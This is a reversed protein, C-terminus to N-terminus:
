ATNVIDAGDQDNARRRSDEKRKGIGPCFIGPGVRANERGKDDTRGAHDDEVGVLGGSKALIRRDWRMQEAVASGRDSEEQRKDM